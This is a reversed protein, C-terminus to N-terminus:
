PSVILLNPYDGCAANHMNIAKELTLLNPRVIKALSEILGFLISSENETKLYCSRLNETVTKGNICVKERNWREITATQINKEIALNSGNLCVSLKKVSPTTIVFLLLLLLVPTLLLVVIIWKFNSPKQTDNVLNTTQTSRSVLSGQTLNQPQQGVSAPKSPEIPNQGIKHANQDGITNQNEM